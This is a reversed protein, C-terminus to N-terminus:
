IHMEPYIHDLYWKFLKYGLKKRLEVCESLIFWLNMNIDVRDGKVSLFLQPGSLNFSAVGVLALALM